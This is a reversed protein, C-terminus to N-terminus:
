WTLRGDAIRDKVAKATLKSISRSSYTATFLSKLQSTLVEDSM